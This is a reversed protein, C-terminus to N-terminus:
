QEGDKHKTHAIAEDLEKNEQELQRIYEAHNLERRRVMKRRLTWGILGAIANIGVLLEVVRALM